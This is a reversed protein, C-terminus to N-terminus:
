AKISAEIVRVAGDERPAPPEFLYGGAIKQTHIPTGDDLVFADTIEKDTDFRIDEHMDPLIYLYRRNEKASAPFSCREGSILPRTNEFADINANRWAAFADLTQIAEKPLTGDAMPGIDPLYNGGWAVTRAYEASIASLPRYPVDKMYAWGRTMWMTCYEWWGEPRSDAEKVKVEMTEFDGTGHLRSNVVIGPQLARIKDMPYVQGEPMGGDFWLLDVKGYETLLEEIQGAVYAGYVENHKQTEEASPLTTPNYDADLYPLAPNRKKATEVLFSMYNKNFHWDPPSYYFGVKLGYKRCAEAFERVFDRGGLYNKTSFNGYKSPWMAFGDHHRTTFVAYRFGTEKAKKLIADADFREGKFDKALDFYQNPTFHKGIKRERLPKNMERIEEETATRGAFEWGCIMGWSLDLTARVTSIGWHLFLGIGAEPFWSARPDPNYLGTKESIKAVKIAEHQGKVELEAKDQAMEIGGKPKHAANQAPKIKTNSYM